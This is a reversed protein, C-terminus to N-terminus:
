DGREAYRRREERKQDLEENFEQVVREIREEEPLHEFKRDLRLISLWYTVEDFPIDDLATEPLGYLRLTNRVSSRAMEDMAARFKEDKEKELRRQLNEAEEEQRKRRTDRAWIKNLAAAAELHEPSPKEGRSFKELGERQLRKLAELDELTEPYLLDALQM